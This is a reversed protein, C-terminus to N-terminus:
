ALLYHSYAFEPFLSSEYPIRFINWRPLLGQWIPFSTHWSQGAQKCLYGAHRVSMSTYWFIVSHLRKFANKFVTKFIESPLCKNRQYTPPPFHELAWVRPRFFIELSWDQQAALERCSYRFIIVRALICGSIYFNSVVTTSLYFFTVKQFQWGKSRVPAYQFGDYKM